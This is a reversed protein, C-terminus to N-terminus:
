DDEEAEASLIKFTGRTAKNGELSDFEYESGQIKGTMEVTLEIKYTKNVDWKELAPLDDASLRLTPKPKPMPKDAIEVKPTNVVKVNQAKLAGKVAVAKKERYSM